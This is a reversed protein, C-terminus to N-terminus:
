RCSGPIYFCFFFRAHFMGIEINRVARYKLELITYFVFFPAFYFPTDALYSVAASISLPTASCWCCCIRTGAAVAQSFFPYFRLFLHPFKHPRYVLCLLCHRLFLFPSSSLLLHTTAASYGSALSCPSPVSDTILMLVSSLSRLLSALTTVSIGIAM